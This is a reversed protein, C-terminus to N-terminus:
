GRCRRRRLDSETRREDPSDEDSEWQYDEGGSSSKQETPSDDESEEHHDEDDGSVATEMDSKPQTRRTTRECPRGPEGGDLGRLM